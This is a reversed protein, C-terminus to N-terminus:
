GLVQLKTELFWTVVKHGGLSPGLCCCHSRLSKWIPGIHALAPNFIFREQKLNARSHSHIVKHDKGWCQAQTLFSIKAEKPPTQVTLRPRCPYLSNRGLNIGLQTQKQLFLFFSTIQQPNWFVTLVRVPFAFNLHFVKQGTIRAFTLEIRKKRQSIRNKLSLLEWFVQTLARDNDLEKRRNTQEEQNYLGKSRFSWHKAM